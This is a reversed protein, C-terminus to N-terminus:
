PRRVTIGGAPLLAQLVDRPIGLERVIEVERDSRDREDGPTLLLRVVGRRRVSDPPAATWLTEGDYVITGLALETPLDELFHKTGHIVWAGRAVFEGSTGAKSVQEPTVWFATASAHGARWAKSYAVAWQGAERLTVDTLAPAGEAPHKVVVSAAGHVDAHVYTDGTKLHRKVVLDNSSADRGGVVVAGESSIFWRYREFWHVRRRRTPSPAESPARAPLSPEPASLKRETEELAVRAGSLKAQIRKAEEFLAQASERAGRGRLLPVRLDGLTVEVVESGEESASERGLASEAETYHSYIAEAQAKKEAATKSLEVVAGRQQQALRELETRARSVALEEASPPAVVLTSFYAHAAESFTPFTRAEIDPLTDWRRSVYPTADVVVGERLYLYGHPREGVEGLLAALDAHVRRAARDAERSAPAGASLGGRAILEEALPGGLALRAALTSALDSRSRALEREIEAAGLTWPDTRGPPRAYESGVRVSRHAWRRPFAVAAIKGERAVILNGSGFMEFALLLESPEEARGFSLELFREGAPEAVGRLMAGTLLRRLEQAFPSLEEAHTPPSELLAGYRGPVLALERRGEGPVRLVLSWGGTGLDFAKDVRARDLARLERVLALTDLATFRDKPSPAPIV